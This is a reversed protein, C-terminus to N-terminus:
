TLEYEFDWGAMLMHKAPAWALAGEGQPLLKFHLELTLSQGPHLTAPVKGGGKVRIKTPLYNSDPMMAKYGSAAVPVTGQVNTYTVFFTGPSSRGDKWTGEQIAQEVAAPETPGSPTVDVMGHQFVAKVTDGEVLTTQPTQLSAVVYRPNAPAKQLAALQQKAIVTPSVTRAGGNHALLVAVGGGAIAAVLIALPLVWRPGFGFIRGGGAHATATEHSTGSSM